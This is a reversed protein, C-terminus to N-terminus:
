MTSRNPLLEMPCCNVQGAGTVQHDVPPPYDRFVLLSGEEVNNEAMDLLFRAMWGAGVHNGNIIGRPSENIDSSPGWETVYLPINNLGVSNLKDRLFSIQRDISPYEGFETLGSLAQQNGYFHFSMFDLRLQGAVIDKTFQEAWNLSGYGYSFPTISPGGIRIKLGPHERELEDAANAWVGYLKLYASYM